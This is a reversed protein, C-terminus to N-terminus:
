APLVVKTARRIGIEGNRLFDIARNFFLTSLLQRLILWSDREIFFWLLERQYELLPRPSTWTAQFNSAMRTIPFGNFQRIQPPFRFLRM